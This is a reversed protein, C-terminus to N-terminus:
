FKQTVRSCWSIKAALKLVLNKLFPMQLKNNYSSCQGERPEGDDVSFLKEHYLVANYNNIQKNCLKNEYDVNEQQTM